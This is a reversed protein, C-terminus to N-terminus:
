ICIFDSEVVQIFSVIISSSIINIIIVAVNFRPWM